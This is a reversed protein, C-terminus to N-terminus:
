TGNLHARVSLTLMLSAFFHTSLFANWYSTYRRCRYGNPPDGVPVGRSCAGGPVLGGPTPVGGPAPVGRGLVLGGWSSAGGRSCAGGGRSWVGGLPCVCAQLFIVKGWVENAPPLYGNNTIIALPIALLETHVSGLVM